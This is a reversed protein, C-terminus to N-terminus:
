FDSNDWKLIPKSKVQSLVMRLDCKWLKETSTHSDWSTTTAFVYSVKEPLQLATQLVAGAAVPRNFITLLPTDSWELFFIHKKHQSLKYFTLCFM